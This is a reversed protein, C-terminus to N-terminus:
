RHADYALLQLELYRGDQRSAWPFIPAVEVGDSSMRTMERLTHLPLVLPARGSDVERSLYKLPNSPETPLVLTRDAKANEHFELQKAPRAEEKSRQAVAEHEYYIKSTM